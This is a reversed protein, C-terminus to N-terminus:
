PANNQEFWNLVSLPFRPGSQWLKVSEAVLPSRLQPSAIIEAPTLWHCCDIDDDQPSTPLCQALDSCFLFRIFATGDNATWQHVGLLQQPSLTLGTEEFIEREIAAILSENAELHGAPQNLTAAGDVQEEVVLLRGQAHIVCAVTIHPTFM